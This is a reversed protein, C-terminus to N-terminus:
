NEDDENEDENEDGVGDGGGVGGVQHEVADSFYDEEDDDIDSALADREEDSDMGEDDSVVVGPSSGVMRPTVPEDFDELADEMIMDPSAEDDITALTDDMADDRSDDMGAGFDEQRVDRSVDATPGAQLPGGTDVEAIAPLQVVDGEPPALLGSDATGVTAANDPPPEDAASGNEGANGAEKGKTKKSGQGRKVIRKPMDSADRIRESRAKYSKKNRVWRQITKAETGNLIGKKQMDDLEDPDLGLDPLPVSIIKSLRDPVIDPIALAAEFESDAVERKAKVAILKTKMIGKFKAITGNCYWGDALIECQDRYPADKMLNVLLPVTIDCVQWIKGDLTLKKGDFVHTDDNTHTIGHKKSITFSQRNDRWPEGEVRESEENFQFFFTQYQRYKPDKRPDVGFKILADRWPGGKFQYGVFPIAQKFQYIGPVNGVRNLLSRRTWIPREEMVQKLTAILQLIAEDAPEDRDPEFPIDQVDHGLYQVGGKEPKSHNVLIREGNQDQEQTLHVAQHWGWNFPLAHSSMIPPPVIDENPKWGRRQDLKFERIHEIRGSLITNTFRPIFETNSTSQHFDSMGRYRHTQRIEGVAEVTYKGVNDKLKRLIQAPEDMRSVSSLLTPTPKPVKPAKPAPVAAPDPANPAPVLAPDPADPRLILAPDPANSEAVLASDPANSDEFPDQSGRKRKRGTRKPVTIKLLVNNTPTNHSLIPVCMPDNQRLYLPICEEPDVSNLIRQFPKNRGFTNIGNDLNQIILPHEVATIERPAIQYIPAQKARAPGRNLRPM